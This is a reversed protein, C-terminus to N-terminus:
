RSGYYGAALKVPNAGLWYRLRLRWMQVITILVGQQEWRRASTTLKGPLCSARQQRRLRRSLEIDEMLPQPPVGGVADLLTRHAFIGQDGTCIGTVRSRLNMMAAVLALVARESRLAVDFRGWGPAELDLLQAPVEPGFSSDAHLFWVWPRSSATAGAHLQAGRSARGSRILQVSDPLAMQGLDQSGGDVVIVECDRPLCPLLRALAAADNYVPIVIALDQFQVGPSHGM